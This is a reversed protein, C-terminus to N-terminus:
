KVLKKVDDYYGDQRNQRDRETRYKKMKIYAEMMADYPMKRFNEEFYKRQNDFLVGGLLDDPNFFGTDRLQMIQEVSLKPTTDITMEPVYAAVIRLFLSDETCIPLDFTDVDM